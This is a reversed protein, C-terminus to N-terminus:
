HKIVLGQGTPLELIHHGRKQMFETERQLQAAYADSWGYDDFVIVGGPSVRDFLMELAAVEAV